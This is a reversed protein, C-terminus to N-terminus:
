NQRDNRSYGNKDGGATPLYLIINYEAPVGAGFAAKSLPKTQIKGLRWFATIGECAFAISLWLPLLM